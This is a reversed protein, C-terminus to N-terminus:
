AKLLSLPFPDVLLIINDNRRMWILTMKPTRVICNHLRPSISSTPLLGLLIKCNRQYNFLHRSSHLIPFLFQLFSM